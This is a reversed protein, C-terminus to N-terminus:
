PSAGIWVAGHYVIAVIGVFALLNKLLQGALWIRGHHPVPRTSGVILTEAAVLREVCVGGPNATM